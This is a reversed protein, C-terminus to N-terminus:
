NKIELPEVLLMMGRAAVVRVERDAPVEAPSASSESVAVCEAQWLEGRVRVFGQPNLERTTTGIAGVLGAPGRDGPPPPEFASKVFPYMVADKILWAVLIGAALPVGLWEFQVAAALALGLITLGPIQLLSYYLLTKNM